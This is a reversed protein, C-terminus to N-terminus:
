DAVIRDAAARYADSLLRTIPGPSGSGVPEGDLVVTPRVETTTGTFFIEDAARFESEAVDREATPLGLDSALELVFQRTVGHLIRRDALATTVVGDIVSFVNNHTGETVMGDRIFAADAVGAEVAAQQALVNPLLATCKIDARGWRQDPLTIAATGLDWQEPTARALPGVFAYVTPEVSTTPFAHTRPAVGRTVQVYFVVFEEGVLDNQALLRECVVSLGAVDFDISVEGLGRSLRAYHRDPLFSTGSYVPIAEYVADAFLFARDNM